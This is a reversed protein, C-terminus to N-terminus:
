ATAKRAKISYCNANGQIDNFCLKVIENPECKHLPDLQLEKSLFM